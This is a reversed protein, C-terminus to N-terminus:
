RGVGRLARVELCQASGAEFARCGDPREDYIACTTARGVRGRLMTCRTQAGYRRLPMRVENPDLHATALREFRDTPPQLIKLRTAPKMRALDDHTVIISWRRGCCAGCTTCDLDDDTM